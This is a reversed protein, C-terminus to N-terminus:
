FRCSRACIARGFPRPGFMERSLPLPSPRFEATRRHAPAPAQVDSPRFTVSIPCTCCCGADEAILKAGVLQSFLLQTREVCMNCLHGAQQRFIMHRLRAQFFRAFAVPGYGEKQAPARQKLFPWISQHWMTRPHCLSMLARSVLQLNFTATRRHAPAPAQVGSPRLTVSIPSTCCCGADEAIAQAGSLQAFLLQTQESRMNCLHGAAKLDHAPKAFAHM